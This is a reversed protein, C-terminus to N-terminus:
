VQNWRQKNNCVSAHLRCKYKSIEHWEMISMLNVVKANINKAVDSVCLKAYPDNINNFSGSCKIVEVSYPYLLPVNSSINIVASIKRCERNNMSIRKLANCSFFSM